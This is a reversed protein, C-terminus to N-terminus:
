RIRSYSQSRVYFEYSVSYTQHLKSTILSETTILEISYRKTLSLNTYVGYLESKFYHSYNLSYSM